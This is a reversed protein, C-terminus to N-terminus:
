FDGLPTGDDRTCLQALTQMNINDSIFRVAGDTLLVHVGGTHASNLPKNIGYNDSVGPTTESIAPFNPSYRVTTLNFQREFMGGPAAEVRTLNPSGMLIGHVGQNDATRSGGAATLVFMSSEGVIITNSTGDTVDRIKKNELPLLLGGAAIQGGSAGATGCCGCCNALRGSPNAFTGQNTAGMIGYYHPHETIAGGSDRMSPMPSSPCTAWVFRVGNLVAGNATGGVGSPDGCCTWGPHSGNFTIKNFVPANDIYPLIRIYWSPGWGGAASAVNGNPFGDAVDHYNHLALGMQKLNNKCQTRRAAERAQQVAPLLLAILVAIIAIVVLLEILTFGRKRM